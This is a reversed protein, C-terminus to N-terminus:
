PSQGGHAGASVAWNFFANVHRLTLCVTANKFNAVLWKKFNSVDKQTAQIPTACGGAGGHTPTASLAGEFARTSVFNELRKLSVDYSSLTKSDLGRQSLTGFFDARVQEYGAM